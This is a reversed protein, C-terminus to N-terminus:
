GTRNAPAHAGPGAAPISDSSRASDFPCAARPCASGVPVISERLDSACRHVTDPASSAPIFNLRIDVRKRCSHGKGEDSAHVRGAISPAASPGKPSQDKAFWKAVRGRAVYM